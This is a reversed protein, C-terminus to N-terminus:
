FTKVSFLIYSFYRRWEKQGVSCEMPQIGLLPCPNTLKQRCKEPRALSQQLNGTKVRKQGSLFRCRKSINCSTMFLFLVEHKLEAGGKLMWPKLFLYARNNLETIPCKKLHMYVTYVVSFWLSFEEWLGCVCM